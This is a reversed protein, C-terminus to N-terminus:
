RPINLCGIGPVCGSVDNPTVVGSPGGPIQGEVLDPGATGSMGGPFGGTAGGSDVVGCPTGDPSVCDPPNAAAPGALSLAGAAIGAAVTLTLKTGFNTGM